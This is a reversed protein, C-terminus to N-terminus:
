CVFHIWHLLSVPYNFHVAQFEFKEISSIEQVRSQQPMNLELFKM